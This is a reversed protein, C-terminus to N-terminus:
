KPLASALSLSNENLILPRMEGALFVSGTVCVLDNPKAFALAAKWAEVPAPCITHPLGGSSRLLAAAQEPAVGRSSSRYRTLFVHEFHPALLQLMGALDKDGSTGFILLRRTSPFSATLTDVLAHVSALNHACDLVVLPQGAFVELRAPWQVEALGSRVAPDDIHLGEERLREVCAVGVAANAAQHEGLLGLAMEPWTREATTIQVRPPHIVYRAWDSIATVHGPEYRYRFDVDLQDLPAHRERCTSEIVDRAEPATVGSVTPRGPKIIGAKEMAISALRTGLLETHDFSISTIVAVLPNCVNTSDFRGGLGVELVAVDVQRRNFHLFGLATAVEFFTPSLSSPDGEVARRIDSMAATLEDASIPM